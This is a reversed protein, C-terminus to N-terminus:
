FVRPPPIFDLPPLALIFVHDPRPFYGGREPGAREDYAKSANFRAPGGSGGGPYGGQFLLQLVMWQQPPVWSSTTSLNLLQSSLANFLQITSVNFLLFHLSSARVLKNCIGIPALIPLQSILVDNGRTLCSQLGRQLATGGPGPGTPWLASAARPRLGLGSPPGVRGRAQRPPPSRGDRKKNAGGGGGIIM